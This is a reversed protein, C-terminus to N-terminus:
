YMRQSQCEAASKNYITRKAISLNISESVRPISVFSNNLTEVSSHNRYALLNREFCLHWFEDVFETPLVIYYTWLQNLMQGCWCHDLWSCDGLLKPIISGPLLASDTLKSHYEKWNLSQLGALFYGLPNLANRGLVCSDLVSHPNTSIRCQTPWQSIEKGPLYRSRFATMSIYLLEYRGVAIIPEVDREPRFDRAIRRKAPGSIVKVLVPM